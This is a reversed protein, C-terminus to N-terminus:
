ALLENYQAATTSLGFATSRLCPKQAGGSQMAQCEACAHQQQKPFMCGCNGPLVNQIYRGASQMAGYVYFHNCLRQLSAICPESTISCLRMGSLLARPKPDTLCATATAGASSTTSIAQWPLTAACSPCGADMARCFVQLMTSVQCYSSSLAARLNCRFLNVFVAAGGARSLM